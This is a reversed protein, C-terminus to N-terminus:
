AMDEIVLSLVSYAFLPRANPGWEPFFYCVYTNASPDITTDFVGVGSRPMTRWGEYSPISVLSDSVSGLNRSAAASNFPYELITFYGMEPIDTHGAPAYRRAVASVIKVTSASLYPNLAVTWSGAPNIIIDLASSARVYSGYPAWITSSSQPVGDGVMPVFVSRQRLKRSLTVTRASQDDLLTLDSTDVVLQRSTSLSPEPRYTLYPANLPAGAQIGTALKAIKRKDDPSMFGAASTTALAHLSGGALEGHWHVHGAPAYYAANGIQADYESLPMPSDEPMVPCDASIERTRRGEEGVEDTFVMNLGAILVMESSLRDDELTTVYAVDDPAQGTELRDEPQYFGYPDWTLLGGDRIADEIYKSLDVIAGRSTVPIGSADPYQEGEKPYVEIPM